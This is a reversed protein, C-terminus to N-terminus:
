RRILRRAGAPSPSFPTAEKRLQWRLTGVDAFDFAAITGKPPRANSSFALDTQPRGNTVSATSRVLWRFPLYQHTSRDNSERKCNQDEGNACHRPSSLCGRPGACLLDGNRLESDVIDLFGSASACARMARRTVNPVAISATRASRVTKLLFGTRFCSRGGVAPTRYKRRRPGSRWRHRSIRRRAFLMSPPM